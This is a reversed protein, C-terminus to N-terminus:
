SNSLVEYEDENPDIDLGSGSDWKMMLLDGWPSPNYGLVTGEDGEKLKTWQDDMKILRIRSGVQPLGTVISYFSDEIYTILNYDNKATLGFTNTIYDRGSVGIWTMLDSYSYYPKPHKYTTPIDEGSFERVTSKIILEILKSKKSVEEKLIKKITTKSESVSTDKLENLISMYEVIAFEIDYGWQNYMEDIIPYEMTFTVLEDDDSGMGEAEDWDDWISTYEGNIYQPLTFFDKYGRGWSDKIDNYIRNKWFKRMRHNSMFKKDRSEM